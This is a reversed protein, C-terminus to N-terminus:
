YHQFLLIRGPLARGISEFTKRGMVVPKGMTVRKFYKLDAPLHWPMENDKGIVNNETHAVIHAIIPKLAKSDSM